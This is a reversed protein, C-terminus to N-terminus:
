KPNSSDNIKTYFNFEGIHLSTGLGLVSITLEYEKQTTFGLDSLIGLPKYTVNIFKIYVKNQREYFDYQMKLYEQERDNELIFIDCVSVGSHTPYFEFYIDTGDFKWHNALLKDIADQIAM